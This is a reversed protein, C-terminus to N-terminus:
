TLRTRCKSPLKYKITNKNKVTKPYETMTLPKNLRQPTSFNIEMINKMYQM